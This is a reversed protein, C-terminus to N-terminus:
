LTIRWRGKPFCSIAHTQSPPKHIQWNGVAGVKKTSVAITSGAMIFLEGHSNKPGGIYFL